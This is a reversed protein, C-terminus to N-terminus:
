LHAPTSMLAAKYKLVATAQALQEAYELRGREKAIDAVMGVMWAAAIMKKPDNYLNLRVIENVVEIGQATLM